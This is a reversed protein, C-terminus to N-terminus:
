LGPKDCDCDHKIFRMGKLMDEINALDGEFDGLFDIMEGMFQLDVDIMLLKM